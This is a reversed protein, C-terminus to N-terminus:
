FNFEIFQLSGRLVKIFRFIIDTKAANNKKKPTDAKEACATGLTDKGKVGMLAALRGQHTAL